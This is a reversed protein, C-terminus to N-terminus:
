NQLQRALLVIPHVVEAARSRQRWGNGLFVRCGINSTVLMDPEIAEVQDLKQERLADATHRHRLFYDGAAGCCRPETPLPAVDIGPIRM